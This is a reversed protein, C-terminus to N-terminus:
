FLFLVLCRVSLNVVRKAGLYHLPIILSHSRQRVGSDIPLNRKLLININSEAHHRTVACIWNEKIIIFFFNPRGSCESVGGGIDSLM